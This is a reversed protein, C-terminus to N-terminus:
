QVPHGNVCSSMWRSVALNGVLDTSSTPAILSPEHTVIIARRDSRACERELEGICLRAVSPHLHLEPEDLVLLRWDDSYIATLLVVLERLGHGEERFLSYETDGMKVVPDLFGTLERM